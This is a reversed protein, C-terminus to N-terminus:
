IPRHFQNSSVQGINNHKKALTEIASIMEDTFKFVNNQSSHLNINELSMKQILVDFDVFDKYKNNTNLHTLHLLEEFSDVLLLAPLHISIPQDTDYIVRYKLLSNKDEIAQLPFRLGRYAHLGSMAHVKYTRRVLLPLLATPQLAENIELECGNIKAFDVDRSIAYNSLAKAMLTVIPGSQPHEHYACNDCNVRTKSDKPQILEAGCAPCFSLSSPPQIQELM